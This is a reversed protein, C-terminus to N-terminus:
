PREKSEPRAAASARRPSDITEIPDIAGAPDIPAAPDIPMAPDNPPIGTPAETPGVDEERRSEKERRIEWRYATAWDRLGREDLWHAVWDPGFTAKRQEVTESLGDFSTGSPPTVFSLALPGLDLVFLRSGLM